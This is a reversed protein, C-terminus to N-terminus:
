KPYASELAFARKLLIRRGSMSLYGARAFEGLARSVTERSTGVMAALEQQTPRNEILIGDPRAQGERRGLELLTHAVRGHVDLLALSGIIDDARRLRRSMEALMNLAAQPTRQVYAAFAERSLVYLLSHSRATVRASRPEGDLLAMEGFVEGPGLVSLIMERGETSLLSVKVKGSAIIYLSDGPAQEAILLEDKSARRPILRRALGELEEHPLGRFLTVKRLLEPTAMLPERTM